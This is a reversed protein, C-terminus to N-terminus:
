KRSAADLRAQARRLANLARAVDLDQPPHSLRDLARKRAEEARAVDIEDAKEASDALVRVRDGLVEVWGGTVAMHRRRGQAVYALDGTGIEGLLPSHGPLVGIYGNVLPIQAEEVQERVLLRDPTAVELQFTEAM